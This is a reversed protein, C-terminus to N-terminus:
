PALEVYIPHQVVVENGAPTVDHGYKDQIREVDNPLSISHPQEDPAWLVWVRGKPSGFAYGRLGEFRTVPQQYSAGGLIHILFALAHYAPRPQQREDL